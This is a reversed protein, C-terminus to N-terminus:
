GVHRVGQTLGPVEPRARSEGARRETVLHDVVVRVHGVDLQLRVVRGDCVPLEDAGELAHSLPAILVVRTLGAVPLSNRSTGAAVSASVSAAMSRACAANAAQRSTAGPSRALSNRAKAAITSACMSSSAWSSTSFEPWVM